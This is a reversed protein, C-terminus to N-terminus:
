PSPALADPPEPLKPGAFDERIAHDDPVPTLSRLRRGAAAGLALIAALVAADLAVTPVIVWDIPLWDFGSLPRALGAVAAAVVAAVGVLVRTRTQSLSLACLLFPLVVPALGLAIGPPGSAAHDLAAFVGVICAIVVGLRPHRVRRAVAWGVGGVVSVVVGLVVALTFLKLAGSAQGGGFSMTALGVPSALLAAVVALGAFAPLGWKWLQERRLSAGAVLPVATLPVVFPWVYSSSTWGKWVASPPMWRWWGLLDAVALQSSTALAILGATTALFAIAPVILLPRRHVAAALHSPPDSMPPVSEPVREASLAAAAVFALGLMARPADVPVGSPAVLVFGCCFAIAVGVTVFPSCRHRLRHAVALMVGGCAVALGWRPMAAGRDWVAAAALGVAAVVGLIAGRRASRRFACWELTALLILVSPWVEVTRALRPASADGTFWAHAAALGLLLVVASVGYLPGRRPGFRRTLVAASLLGCAVPWAMTAPPLGYGPSPSALGGHVGFWLLLPLSWLGLARFPAALVEGLAILTWRAERRDDTM